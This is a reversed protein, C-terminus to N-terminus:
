ITVTISNYSIFLNCYATATQVIWGAGLIGWCVTM